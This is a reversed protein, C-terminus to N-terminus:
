EKFWDVIPKFIGKISEKQKKKKEAISEQKRYHQVNEILDDRERELRLVKIELQSNKAKLEEIKKKLKKKENAMEEIRPDEKIPEWVSKAMDEDKMTPSPHHVTKPRKIPPADEDFQRMWNELKENFDDMTNDINEMHEDINLFSDTLDMGEPIENSYFADYLSKDKLGFAM